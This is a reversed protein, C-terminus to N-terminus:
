KPKLRLGLNNIYPLSFPIFVPLTSEMSTFQKVLEAALFRLSFTKGAGPEAELIAFRKHQELVLANFASFLSQFVSQTTSQSSSISSSLEQIQRSSDSQSSLFQGRPESLVFAQGVPRHSGSLDDPTRKVFRQWYSTYDNLVENRYANVLSQLDIAVGTGFIVEPFIKQLTESPAAYAVTGLRDNEDKDNIATIMGLVIHNAGDWIPAGSYGRTVQESQLHLWDQM